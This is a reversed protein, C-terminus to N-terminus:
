LPFDHPFLIFDYRFADFLLEGLVNMQHFGIDGNLDVRPDDRQGALDIVNRRTGM